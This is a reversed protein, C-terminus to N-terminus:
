GFSRNPSVQVYRLALVRARSELSDLLHLLGLGSGEKALVGLLHPKPDLAESKLNPTQAYPLTTGMSGCSLDAAVRRLRRSRVLLNM